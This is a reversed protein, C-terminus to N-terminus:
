KKWKKVVMNELAVIVKSLEQHSMQKLTKGVVPCRYSKIWCGLVHLNAYNTHNPDRWGLQIALSLIKRHQTNNNEFYAYITPNPLEGTTYCHILETLEIETLDTTSIVKYGLIKGFDALRAERNSYKESVVTMLHQILQAKNKM